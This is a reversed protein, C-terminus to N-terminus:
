PLRICLPVVTLCNATSQSVYLVFSMKSTAMIASAVDSPRLRRIIKRGRRGNDAIAPESVGAIGAAISFIYGLNIGVRTSLRHLSMTRGLDGDLNLKLWYRFLSIASDRNIDSSADLEFM